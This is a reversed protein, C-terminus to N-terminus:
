DGFPNEPDIVKLICRSIQYIRISCNENNGSSKGILKIGSEIRQVTMLVKNEEVDKNTFLAESVMIIEGKRVIIEKGKRKFEISKDTEINVTSSTPINMISNSFSMSKIFNIEEGRKLIFHKVLM